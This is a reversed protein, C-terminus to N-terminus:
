LATGPSVVGWIVENSTVVYKINGAMGVYVPGGDAQIETVPGMRETAFTASPAHGWIVDRDTLVYRTDGATGVEVSGSSTAALTAQGSGASPFFHFSTGDTQVEIARQGDSSEASATSTSSSAIGASAILAVTLAAVKSRISANM